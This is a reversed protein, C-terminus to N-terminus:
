SSIVLVRYNDGPKRETGVVDLVVPRPTDGSDDLSKGGDDLDDEDPPDGLRRSEEHGLVLM